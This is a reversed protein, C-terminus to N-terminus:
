SWTFLNPTFTRRSGECAMVLVIGDVKLNAGIEWLYGSLAKGYLALMDKISSDVFVSNRVSQIIYNFTLDNLMDLFRAEM